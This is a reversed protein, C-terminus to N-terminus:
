VDTCYAYATGIPSTYIPIYDVLQHPRGDVMAAAGIWNCTERSGGQPGSRGRMGTMGPTGPSVDQSADGEPVVYADFHEAMGEIDGKLLHDLMVQDLEEDLYSSPRGPTHWLGGSGIAVVRLDEPYADIAERVARGIRYCRQASVQPPYYANVLVPVVPLDYTHLFELPRMVAHCMGKAPNSDSMSFAPDFGRDLLGNLVGVALGPHGKVKHYMEPQGRHKNDPGSFEDGVFVSLAPYNGFDFNEFQDDGVIVLVDPALRRLVDELVALAKMTRGYKAARDEFPETPVDARYSRGKAREEWREPELAVFAGHSAYLSGVMRAM